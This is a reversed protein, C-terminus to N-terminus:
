PLSAEPTRRMRCNRPPSTSTLWLTVPRLRRLSLTVFHPNALPICGGLTGSGLSHFFHLFHLRLAGFHALKSFNQGGFKRINRLVFPRIPFLRGFPRLFRGPTRVKRGMVSFIPESIRRRDLIGYRSRGRAGVADRGSARALLTYSHAGRAADSGRVPSEPYSSPRGGLRMNPTAM